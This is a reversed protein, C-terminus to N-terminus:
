CHVVYLAVNEHLSTSDSGPSSCEIESHTWLDSAPVRAKINKGCAEWYDEKIRSRITHLGDGALVGSDSEGGLGAKQILGAM